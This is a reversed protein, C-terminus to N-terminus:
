ITCGRHESTEGADAIVRCGTLGFRREDEEIQSLSMRSMGYPRRGALMVDLRNIRLGQQARSSQFLASVATTRWGSNDETMRLHIWLEDHIRSRGSCHDAYRSQTLDLLLRCFTCKEESAAALARVYPIGRTRYPARAFSQIDFNNCAACLADGAPTSDDAVSQMVQFPPSSLIQM